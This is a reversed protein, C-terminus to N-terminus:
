FARVFLTFASGVLPTRQVTVYPLGKGDAGQGCNSAPAGATGLFCMNWVGGSWGDGLESNRSFYQQQSGSVVTGSVNVNAMFGGSAYGAAANPSEYQFLLLSNDVQIRRLACAQSNAWLM